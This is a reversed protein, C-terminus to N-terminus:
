SGQMIYYKNYYKFANLVSYYKQIYNQVSTINIYFETTGTVSGIIYSGKLVICLYVKECLLVDHVLSDGISSDQYM